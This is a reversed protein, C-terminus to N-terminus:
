SDKEVDEVCKIVKEYKHGYIRSAFSKVIEVFDEVLEQMYDKPEDQFAVIVNVGYAKFLEVLYEFGFRTLRDKYTVVIADIQRRKALEILKKLGRRDEKLGSDIDKVETVSVEGFTKKVWEKLTNLQRELDDKQTNSSVRAYIAVQKVREKGSILREVESYPIRWRGNIEIAKIKGERIWKIVGSRSMGFIEAVESPTLYREM